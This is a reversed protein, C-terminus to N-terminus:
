IDTFILRKLNGAYSIKHHQYRIPVRIKKRKGKEQCIKKKQHTSIQRTM